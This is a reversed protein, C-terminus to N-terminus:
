SNYIVDSLDCRFSETTCPIGGFLESSHIPASPKCVNQEKYNPRNSNFSPYFNPQHPGPFGLYVSDPKQKHNKELTVYDGGPVVPSKYTPQTLTQSSELNRLQFTAEEYELRAREAKEILADRRAILEYNNGYMPPSSAAGLGGSNMPPYSSTDSHHHFYTSSVASRHTKSSTSPTTLLSAPQNNHHINGYSYLHKSLAYSSDNARPNQSYLGANSKSANYASQMDKHGNPM